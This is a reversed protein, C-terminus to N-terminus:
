RFVGRWRKARLNYKEGGRPLYATSLLLSTNREKSQYSGFSYEEGGSSLLSYEKGGSPLYVTSREVAHYTLQVIRWRKALLSYEGGGSQLYDTSREVAQYIFQVGRWGKTLLSYEEGGSPQYVTSRALWGSILLFPRRQKIQVYLKKM